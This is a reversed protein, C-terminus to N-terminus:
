AVAPQPLKQSDFRHILQQKLSHNKLEGKNDSLFWLCRERHLAYFMGVTVPSLKLRGKDEGSPLGQFLTFKCSRDAITLFGSLNM